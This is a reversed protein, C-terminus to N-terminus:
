KGQPGQSLIQLLALAANHNEVYNHEPPRECRKRIDQALSLASNGWLDRLTLNAKAAIFADVIPLTPAIGEYSDCDVVGKLLKIIPTEGEFDRANIDAGSAILTGIVAVTKYGSAGFGSPHLPTDGNFDQANPNAGKSLLLRTVETDGKVSHLATAGSTDEAKVDAGHEILFEVMAPNDAGAAIQLPTSQPFESALGNIQAGEALQKEVSSTDGALVATELEDVKTPNKIPKALAGNTNSPALLDRLDKQVEARQAPTASPNQLALRYWRRGEDLNQTFGGFGHCYYLGLISQAPEFNHDAAKRVWFIELKSDASHGPGGEYQNSSSYYNSFRFEAEPVGKEAALELWHEAVEYSILHLQSDMGILYCYYQALGNGSEARQRLLNFGKGLDSSAKPSVRADRALRRWM